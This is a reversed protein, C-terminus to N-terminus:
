VEEKAAGVALREVLDESRAIDRRLRYLLIYVLTMGVLGIAFTIAFEQSLGSKESGGGMVPAPHQSAKVRNSSRRARLPHCM